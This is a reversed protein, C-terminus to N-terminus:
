KWFVKHGAPRPIEDLADIHKRPIDDLTWDLQEEFCLKLSAWIRLTMPHEVGLVETSRGLTKVHGDISVKLLYRYDNGGFFHRKYICQATRWHMEICVAHSRGLAQEAATHLTVLHRVAETVLNQDLMCYGVFREAPVVIGREVIEALGHRRELVRIPDRPAHQTACM